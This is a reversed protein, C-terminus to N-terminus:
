LWRGTSEPLTAQGDYPLWRLSQKRPFSGDDRVHWTTQTQSPNRIVARNRRNPKGPPRRGFAELSPVRPLQTRSSGRAIAIQHHRHRHPVSRLKPIARDPSTTQRIPKSRARRYTAHSPPRRGPRASVNGTSSRHPVRKVTRTQSTAAVSMLHRDQIPRSARDAQPTTPLRGQLDRHRVNTRWLLPVSRRAGASSRPRDRSRM